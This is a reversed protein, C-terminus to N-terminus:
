ASQRLDPRDETWPWAGGARLRTPWERSERDGRWAVFDAVRNSPDFDQAPRLGYGFEPWRLWLSSGTPRVPRESGGFGHGAHAEVILACNAASRCRDLVAAVRRAPEEDNPNGAHLRYIPGTILISPQIAAVHRLLWTEDDSRTLDLGEPRAEIYLRESPDAGHAKAQANLGRFARRLKPVGNECDVLLVRQPTYRATPRFPNIGSAATIAIQRLLYSKGLGETGTLVLRDGRELLGPIAWEYPTDQTDIFEGLTPTTVDGQAEVGDIVAQAETVVYQALRLTNTEEMEAAHQTHAGLKWLRRLRGTNAIMDAAYRASEIGGFQYQPLGLIAAAGGAVGLTGRRTLEDIVALEDIPKREVRLATIANAIAQFPPDLDETRAVAFLEAAHEPHEIVVALVTAQAMSHNSTVAGM